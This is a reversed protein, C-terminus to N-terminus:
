KKEKNGSSIKVKAHRLVRDHLLFGKQLEEIIMNEPLDSDVKML